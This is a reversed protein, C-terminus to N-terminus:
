EGVENGRIRAYCLTRSNILRLLLVFSVSVSGDTGDLGTAAAVVISRLRPGGAPAGHAGGPSESESTARTM